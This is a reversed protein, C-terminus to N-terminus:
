RSRSTMVRSFTTTRDRRGAWAAVAKPGTNRILFELFTLEGLLGRMAQQTLETSEGRGSPTGAVPPGFRRRRPRRRATTLDVLFDDCFAEFPRLLAENGSVVCRIDLYKQAKQTPRGVLRQSHHRFTKLEFRRFREDSAPAPSVVLHANQDADLAVFVSVDGRSTKIEQGVLRNPKPGAGTRLSNLLPGVIGRYKMPGTALRIRGHRETHSDPFVFCLASSTPPRRPSAFFAKKPTGSNKDIAYLMLCGVNRITEQEAADGEELGRYRRSEVARPDFEEDDALAHGAERDRREGLPISRSGPERASRRCGLVAARGESNQRRIYKTLNDRNVVPADKSFTYSNVFDIIAARSDSDKWIHMGENSASITPRAWAKARPGERCGRQEAPGVKDGIPFSVTQQDTNRFSINVPRGAGM